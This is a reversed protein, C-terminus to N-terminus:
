MLSPTPLCSKAKRHHELVAAAQAEEASLVGCAMADAVSPMFYAAPHFHWPGSPGQEWPGLHTEHWGAYTPVTKDPKRRAPSPRIGEIIRMANRSGAVDRSAEAERFLIFSIGVSWAGAPSIGMANLNETHGPLPPLSKRDGM